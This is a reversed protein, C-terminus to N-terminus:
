VKVGKIGDFCDFHWAELGIAYPMLPVACLSAYHCMTQADRCM